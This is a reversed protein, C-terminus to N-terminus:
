LIAQVWSLIRGLVMVPGLALALTAALRTMVPLWQQWSGGAPMLALELRLYGSWLVLQMGSILAIWVPIGPENVKGTLMSAVLYWLVGGSGVASWGLGLRRVWGALTAPVPSPQERLLVGLGTLYRGGWLWGWQAATMTLLAYFGIVHALVNDWTRLVAGPLRLMNSIEVLVSLGVLTWRPDLIVSRGGALRLTVWGQLPALYRQQVSDVADRPVGQQWLQVHVQRLQGQLWVLHSTILIVGLFPLGTYLPDRLWPVAQMDVAFTWGLYVLTALLAQWAWTPLPAIRGLWDLVQELPHRLLTPPLLNAERLMAHLAAWEETCQPCAALHRLVRRREWPALNGEVAASLTAESLHNVSRLTKEGSITRMYNTAIESCFTVAPCGLNPM